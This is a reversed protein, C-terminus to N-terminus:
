EHKREIDIEKRINVRKSIFSPKCPKGGALVSGTHNPPLHGCILMMAICIDLAVTNFNSVLIKLAM